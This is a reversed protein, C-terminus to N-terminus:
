ELEDQNIDEKELKELDRRITEESVNFENALKSVYVINNFYLENLLNRRRELPKM